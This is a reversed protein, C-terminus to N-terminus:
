NESIGSVEVWIDCGYDGEKEITKCENIEALPVNGKICPTDLEVNWTDEVDKKSKALDASSEVDGEGEKSTKDLYSCLNLYCYEEYQPDQIDELCYLGAAKGGAYSSPYITEYANVKPKPKQVLKYQVDDVRDEALFSDSLDVQFTKSKVEEPFVTGFTLEHPSVSLANEIHAKVNIVHAEFAAFIPMMTVGVVLAALCVLLRKKEM